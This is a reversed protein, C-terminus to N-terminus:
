RYDMKAIPTRPQKLFKANVCNRLPLGRVARLMQRAAKERMERRSEEAYFAAHPTLLLRGDLWAERNSHAEILPHKSSPPEPDLVDAAYAQLRGEALAEFVADLSVIKGRATNILIMDAKCHALSEKNIMEETEKTLPAHISLFDSVKILEELSEVRQVQYTKDYGDDLYPDYFAVSIGFAKARLAVATGIRGLGVIGLTTGELRCIRGAIDHKWNSVPNVRVATDYVSLKRSLALLLALTHDAVDNTGYDPINVVPIGLEGACECDINDYGVGVRVLARCSELQRLTKSSLTIEHWVMVAELESIQEPLQAEDTCAFCHIVAEPGLVQAEVSCESLHDLIGFQMMSM